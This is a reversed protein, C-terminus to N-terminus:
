DTLLKNADSTDDVQQSSKMPVPAPAHTQQIQPQGSYPRPQEKHDLTKM